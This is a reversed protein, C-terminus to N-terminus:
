QPPRSVKLLVESKNNLADMSMSTLRLNTVGNEVDEEWVLGGDYKAGSADHVLKAVAVFIGLLVNVALLTGTVKDTAPLDWLVALSNYFANLGPVILLAAQKFLNYNKDSLWSLPQNNSQTSPQSM